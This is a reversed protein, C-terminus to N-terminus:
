TRDGGGRGRGGSGRACGRHAAWQGRQNRNGRDHRLDPRVGGRLARHQHRQRLDASETYPYAGWAGDSVGGSGPYTDYYGVSQPSTPVSFDVIELGAKYWAIYAIGDKMFVNHVMSNPDRALTYSGVRSMNGPDSVDLITIHGGNVEDTTLAYHQDDTTWVNHTFADDTVFTDLVPAAAPIQTLDITALFGDYIAAAYGIGDKSYFDHIYFDSFTFIRPPNTLSQNLDFVQM